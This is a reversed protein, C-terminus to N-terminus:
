GPPFCQRRAAAFSILVLESRYYFSTALKNGVTKIEPQASSTYNSVSRRFRRSLLRFDRFTVRSFLCAVKDQAYKANSSFIFLLYGDATRDPLFDQRTLIGFILHRERTRMIPVGVSAHKATKEELYMYRIYRWRTRGESIKVARSSLNCCPFSTALVRNTYLYWQISQLSWYKWLGWKRRTLCPIFRNIYPLAIIQQAVISWGSRQVADTIFNPDHPATSWLNAIYNLPTTRSEAGSRILRASSKTLHHRFVQSQPPM